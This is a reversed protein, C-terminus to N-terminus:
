GEFNGRAKGSRNKLPRVPSQFFGNRVANDPLKSLSMYDAVSRGEYNECRKGSRNKLPRVPSQNDNPLIKFPMAAFM